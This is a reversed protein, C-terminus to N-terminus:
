LAERTATETVRKIEDELEQSLGLIGPDLYGKIILSTAEDESLERSMLYWLDEKRIKGVAAEHSLECDKILGDLMPIAYINANDAILGRCDIHGRCEEGQGILEGRARITAKGRAVCRTAVHGRSNKGKLIVRGGVDMESNGMGLLISNLNAVSNEGNCHATPYLQLTRLPNLCIYNNTFTANDEVMTVARPRVDVGPAWRHIMTFTPKANRKIFFESIGVHLGSELGPSTCGTIIQIESDEEAIILNHVNQSLGDQSMFLCAQMPFTVKVGPLVRLFYGNDFNLEAQATYKDSDVAVAQWWYDKVWDYRELAEKTSMIEVKGEFERKVSEFIVSHDLQFYTGCRFGEDDKFGVLTASKRADDPLRSLNSIKGWGKAERSYQSLDLDAGLPAPKGKAREHIPLTTIGKGGFTIEGRKVTYNLQGGEASLKVVPPM